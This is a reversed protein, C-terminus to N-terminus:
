ADAIALGFQKDAHPRHTDAITEAIEGSALLYGYALALMDAVGGMTLNM